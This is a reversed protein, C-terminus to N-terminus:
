PQQIKQKRNMPPPQTPTIMPPIPKPRREARLASNHHLITQLHNRAFAVIQLAAKDEPTAIRIGEEQFLILDFFKAARRDDKAVGDGTQYQRGANLCALNSTRCAREYLEAAKAKDQPMGNGKYRLDALMLCANSNDGSCAYEFLSLAKVSNIEDASGNLYILGLKYCGEFLNDDCSIKYFNIVRPLNKIYDGKEIYEEAAHYCNISLKLNCGKEFIEVRTTINIAELDAKTANSGLNLCAYAGGNNCLNKYLILGELRNTPTGRGSMLSGAVAVCADQNDARCSKQYLAYAKVAYETKHPQYDYWKALAACGEAVDLECARSLLPYARQFNRQQLASVGNNLDQAASNVPSAQQLKNASPDSALLKKPISSELYTAPHESAEVPHCLLVMGFIFGHLTLRNM